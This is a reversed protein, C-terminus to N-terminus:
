TVALDVMWKKVLFFPVVDLKHDELHIKFTSKALKFVLYVEVDNDTIIFHFGHFPITKLSIGRKQYNTRLNQVFCLNMLEDNIKKLEDVDPIETKIVKVCKDNQYKYAKGFGGKGIYAGMQMKDFNPMFYRETLEDM